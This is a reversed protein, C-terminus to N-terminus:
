HLARPDPIDTQASYGCFVCKVWERAEPHPELSGVHCSPCVYQALADEYDSFHSLDLDM